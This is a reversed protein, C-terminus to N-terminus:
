GGAAPTNVLDHLLAATASGVGLAAAATLDATTDVDRRLGPWAGLLPVAGSALHRRASDPGFRPALALNEAGCWLATTGAGAHDAVFARRTAPVAALMDTLEHGHLAPLDAQLALVNVAGARHRVAATAAQLAANLGVPKTAAPDATIFAGLLEATAAVDCDPTVVTVSALGAAHVAVVTDTLMALVLRAREGPSFREALRSKARALQKVALVAHVTDATPM